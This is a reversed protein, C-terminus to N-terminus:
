MHSIACYLVRCSLQLHTDDQPSQTRSVSKQEARQWLTRSRDDHNISQLKSGIPKLAKCGEALTDNGIPNYVYDFQERNLKINDKTIFSMDESSNGKRSDIGSCNRIKVGTMCCCQTRWKWIILSQLRIVGVRLEFHCFCVALCIHGYKINNTGYM